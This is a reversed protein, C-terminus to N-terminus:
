RIYALRLFCGDIYLNQNSRNIEVMNFWNNMEYGASFEWPGRSWAIGAGIELVPVVTTTTQSVDLVPGFTDSEQQQTKFDAVLLSQAARGFVRLGCTARWQLEAGFRVGAADMSSPMHIEGHIASGALPTYVNNFERDIMAWRIGGFARFGVTENLGPRWNVELDHLNMRLDSDAEISGMLESAFLSRTSLLGAAATATATRHNSATFRTYNWTFDCGNAFCYGLGTRFGSSRPFDDLSVTAAPVPAATADVNPSVVTAFDHGPQRARWNLYDIYGILGPQCSPGCDVAPGGCNVVTTPAEVVKKLNDLSDGVPCAGAPTKSPVPVLDEEQFPNGAHVLVPMLGAFTAIVIALSFRKAM